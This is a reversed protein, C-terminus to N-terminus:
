LNALGYTSMKSSKKVNFAIQHILPDTNYIQHNMEVTDLSTYDLESKYNVLMIDDLFDPRVFYSSLTGSEFGRVQPTWYSLSGDSSLSGLCRNYKLKLESYRYQWEKFSGVSPFVSSSGSSMQWPAQSQYDFLPQMGLNDLEPTFFDAPSVYSNLRDFGSGNYDVVPECSYICMLVGHCPAQFTIPKDYDGFGYGKGGVRGLPDQETGATAIVDGIDINSHSSGIFSCEGAIGNPVTAGFHAAVQADYHKGARRTVELMKEVAFMSRINNPTIFNWESDNVTNVNNGLVVNVPSDVNDQNLSDTTGFGTIGTLWQNLKDSGLYGVDLGGVEGNYLPSVYTNLFFDKRYPRYHLTCLMNAPSGTIISPSAHYADMNYASPINSQRDSLRYHDSFIKQYAALLWPSSRLVWSHSNGTFDNSNIRAASSVGFGLMDLLRVQDARYSKVTSSTLFPAFTSVGFPPMGSVFVDNFQLVPLQIDNTSWFSSDLDSINYLISGFAHSLQSMPVFFWELHETLQCMAASELEMTRTKIQAQLSVKDDPSLIDFYVPLLQGVSSSFKLFNSMDFGNYGIKARHSPNSLLSSM